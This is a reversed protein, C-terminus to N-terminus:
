LEIKLTRFSVRKFGFEGLLGLTKAVKGYVVRKDAKVIVQIKDCRTKNRRLKEEFAEESLQDEDLFLVGESDILISWSELERQEIKEQSSRTQPLEVGLQQEDKEFTSSVLFFIILLFIIDVLPTLSVSADAQGSEKLFKM